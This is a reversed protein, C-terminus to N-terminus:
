IETIQEIKDSEDLICCCCDINNNRLLNVFAEIINTIEDNNSNARITIITQNDENTYITVNNKNFENNMCFTITQNNM